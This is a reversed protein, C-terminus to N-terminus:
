LCLQGHLAAFTKIYSIFNRPCASEFCGGNQIHTTCIIAQTFGQLEVTGIIVNNSFQHQGYKLLTQITTNTLMQFETHQQFASSSIQPCAGTECFEQVHVCKPAFVYMCFQCVRVRACLRVCICACVRASSHGQVRV